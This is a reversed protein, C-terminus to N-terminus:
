RRKFDELTALGEKILLKQKDTLDSYKVNNNYKINKKTTSYNKKSQDLVYQLLHPFEYDDCKTIITKIKERQKDTFTSQEREAISNLFGHEWENVNANNLLSYLMTSILDKEEKTWQIM